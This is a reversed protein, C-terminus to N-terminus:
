ISVPNLIDRLVLVITLAILFVAVFYAVPMMQGTDVPRDWKKGRIRWIGRKASEYIAGAIHGGDLPVLPVMNFVFLAVNLSMLLGLQSLMKDEISIEANSAIQGSYQGLGVISIAGEESRTSGPALENIAQGAQLPLQVIMNATGVLMSGLQNMAVVPSQQFREAELYVGLYPKSTGDITMLVPDISLTLQSGSREVVLQVTRGVSQQLKTEVDSWLKVTQGDFRVIKDGAMLGAKSSPSAPIAESCNPNVDSPVCSVIDRVTSTREYTGLGSFLVLALVVAILLNAFPGGFMIILKKWPALQYFTKDQDEPAIELQETPQVSATLKQWLNKKATPSQAPPVMGIMQIYGGLPIAKIGYETDGRKRSFLTPGFGVMYKTVKVGFKKAPLLHGIEHLAISVALGLLLFLWGSISNISDM